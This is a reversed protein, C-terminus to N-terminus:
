LPEGGTAMFRPRARAEMEEQRMEVLDMIQKEGWINGGIRGPPVGGRIMRMQWREPKTKKVRTERAYLNAEYVFMDAAQLPCLRDKSEFTLGGLRSHYPLNKLQLIQNYLHFARDKFEDQRDFVFAIRGRCGAEATRDMVEQIACEFVFYWPDRLEPARIKHAHREWASRILSAGFGMYEVESLANILSMQTQNKDAETLDDFPHKGALFNAHHYPRPVDGLAKPWRRQLIKADRNRFVLGAITIMEARAHKGSEDLYAKM